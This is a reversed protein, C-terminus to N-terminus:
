NKRFIIGVEPWEIKHQVINDFIKDVNDDNFPPVGVIMEYAVAGLSWWDITKNKTSIGEIVEPAIYDPTGIIRVGKNRGKKEPLGPSALEEGGMLEKEKLPTELAKDNRIFEIKEEEGESNTKVFKGFADPLTKEKYSKEKKKKDALSKQMGYESLGFDSLKIHGKADILLNDPKLDRHIINKSHLYELALVVEAIYFKALDQDLANYKELISQFDGGVMYEM